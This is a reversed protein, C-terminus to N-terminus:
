SVVESYGAEEQAVDTAEVTMDGEEAEVMDGAVAM